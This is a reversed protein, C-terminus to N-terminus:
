RKRSPVFVPSTSCNYYVHLLKIHVASFFVRNVLHDVKHMVTCVCANVCEMFSVYKLDMHTTTTNASALKDRLFSIVGNKRQSETEHVSLRM